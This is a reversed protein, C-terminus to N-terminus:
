YLKESFTGNHIPKSRYIPMFCSSGFHAEIVLSYAMGGFLQCNNQRTKKSAVRELNLALLRALIENDTSAAFYDTWGCAAAVAADLAAHADTLWAPRQNYLNTLTREKLEAREAAGLNARPLVRDPYPSKDMGLPTVEAVRETWQPPYLWRERLYKLRKAARAISIARLQRARVKEAHLLVSTEVRM